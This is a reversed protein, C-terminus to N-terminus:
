ASVTSTDVPVGVGMTSSVSVKQLFQGKASAPKA